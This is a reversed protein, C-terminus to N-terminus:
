RLAADIMADVRPRPVAGLERAAERGGSFMVLTPISRIGFRTSVEPAQDTDVKGVLVQGARARAIEDIVPAMMKCPQCWDAYFDVLVPVESERVICDFNRDDLPLPRDLHFPRACDGCRPHDALRALDVRNLRGCFPCAITVKRTATAEM